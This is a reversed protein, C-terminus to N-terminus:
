EERMKDERRRAQLQEKVELCWRVHDNLADNDLNLYCLLAHVADQALHHGNCIVGAGHEIVTETLPVIVAYAANAIDNADFTEPEM